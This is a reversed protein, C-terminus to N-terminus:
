RRAKKRALFLGLGAIGMLGFTAPEPIVTLGGMESADFTGAQITGVSFDGSATSFGAVNGTFINYTTIGDGYNGSASSIAVISFERLNMDEWTASTDGFSDLEVGKLNKLFAGTVQYDAEVTTYTDVLNVALGTAKHQLEGTNNDWQVDGIPNAGNVGNYVLYLDVGPLAYGGGDDLAGGNDSLTVARWDIEAAQAGVTAVLATLLALKLKKMM